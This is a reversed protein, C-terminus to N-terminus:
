ARVEETQRFPRWAAEVDTRGKGLYMQVTNINSDVVRELEATSDFRRAARLWEAFAIAICRGYIDGTFGLLHAELFSSDARDTFTRPKGVNIAAPWAAGDVIGWGAYVGEGPMCLAADVEVNATAFGFGTGEGRGHLVRGRVFHSRGLLDAAQRVKGARILGRIRTASVVGGADEILDHETVEFGYSCGLEALLAPTGEGGVGFRFNSGIHVSVPRCAGGLVRLAFARWDTRMLEDTFDFCAVADVGAGLLLRIRDDTDTLRTLPQSGFIVDAPDPDFTVALASLGRRHADAVADDILARHGEHVGDFAGIACVCPTGPDLETRQADPLGLPASLEDARTYVRVSM